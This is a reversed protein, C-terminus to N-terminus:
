IYETVIILGASGAGGTVAGQNNGNAGGSGGTGYAQGNSGNGGNNLGLGAGTAGFGFYSNGGAGLWSLNANNNLLGQGGMQGQINISGLSGIGGAGGAVSQATAAGSGSGGAGGTAQILAGVSSTGGAGGNNNGAAGATGGTGITVAQSVGVTAATYLGRSYGGGGGGGAASQTGAGTAAAGGGGGGGGVVEIICYTMGATPTYTGNSTFTQIALSVAGSPNSQWTPLTGAGNSVLVQGATGVGSVQQLPGTSTTGGTVVAYPTWSTVGTGGGPITVTGFIPDASVGQSILPIGATASPAVLGITTTGHGLLVNHNTLGTLEVTLTGTLPTGITTISGDGVINWNHAVQSVAGGSNGTITGDGAATVSFDLANASGTILVSSDNSTLTVIGTVPAPFVPFAGATGTGGDFQLLSPLPVQSLNIWTAQLFPGDGINATYFSKLLWEVNTLTNLWRKQVPYNVDYTTPDRPLFVEVFPNSSTTGNAVPYLNNAPFQNM